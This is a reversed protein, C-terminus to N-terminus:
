EIEQENEEYINQNLQKFEEAYKVDPPYTAIQAVGSDLLIGNLMKTRIEEINVTDPISIWVYRLLRDYRDTDSVDKELYIEPYETLLEKTFDSANKGEQTNEKGTRDLYEQSAVSEPTDIGILRVKAQEGEIDVVITDGDVVRVVTAKQLQGLNQNKAFEESADQIQSALRDLEEKAKQGAVNAEEKVADWDTNQIDEIVKQTFESSPNGEVADSFKESAIELIEDKDLDSFSFSCATLSSALVVSFTIIQAKKLFSRVQKLQMIEEKDLM